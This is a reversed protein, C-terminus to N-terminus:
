KGQRRYRRKESRTADRPTVVRTRGRRTTYVVFLVRGSETAGLLASRKECGVDYAPAGLGGPDLVAEQAEEPDVGNRRLHDSNHDDWDFM